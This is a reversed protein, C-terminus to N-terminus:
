TVKSAPEPVPLDKTRFGDLYLQIADRILESAQRETEGFFLAVPCTQFMPEGLIAIKKL